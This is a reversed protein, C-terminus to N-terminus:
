KQPVAIEDSKEEITSASAATAKPAEAPAAPKPASVATPRVSLYLPGKQGCGSLAAIGSCISLALILTPKKM